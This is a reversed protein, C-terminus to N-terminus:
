RTKDDNAICNSDLPFSGPNLMTGLKMMRSKPDIETGCNFDIESFERGKRRDKELNMPLQSNSQCQKILSEMALAVDHDFYITFYSSSKEDKNQTFFSTISGFTEKAEDLAKSSISGIAEKAENLTSPSAPSPAIM